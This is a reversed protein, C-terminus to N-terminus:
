PHRSDRSADPLSENRSYNVSDVIVNSADVTLLSDVGQTATTPVARVQTNLEEFPEVYARYTNGDRLDRPFPAFGTTAISPRRTM